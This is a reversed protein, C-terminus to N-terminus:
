AAGAKGGTAPLIEVRMSALWKELDRRAFLVKRCGVRFFPLEGAAKAADLTRPSLSCFVSADSKSLYQTLDTM